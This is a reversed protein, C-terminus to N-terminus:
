RLQAERRQLVLASPVLTPSSLARHFPERFCNTKFQFSGQWTCLLFGVTRLSGRRSTRKATSPEHSPNRGRTADAVAHEGSGTPQLFNSPAGLPIGSLALLAFPSSTKFAASKARPRLRLRWTWTSGGPFCFGLRATNSNSFRLLSRLLLRLAKGSSWSRSGRM